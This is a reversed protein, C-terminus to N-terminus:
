YLLRLSAKKTTFGGPQLRGEVQRTPDLRKPDLGPKSRITRFLGLIGGLDRSMCEYSGLNLGVFCMEFYPEVRQAM